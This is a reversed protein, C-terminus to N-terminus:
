FRRYSIGFVYGAVRKSFIYMNWCADKKYLFGMVHHRVAHYKRTDWIRYM